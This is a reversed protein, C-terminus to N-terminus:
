FTKFWDLSGELMPIYASNHDKGSLPATRLKSTVGLDQFSKVLKTSLESPVWMDQAGYYISVNSKLVWPEVSNETFKQYLSAYTASTSFDSATFGDTLLDGIYYTLKQNIEAKTSTGNVMGSTSSSYPAKFVLSHANSIGAYMKMSEALYVLCAPQEYNGQGSLRNSLWDRLGNLNYIGAGCASANIQLDANKTDNEIASLAALTASGGQGYGLMFIKDNWKAASEYVAFEKGARVFDLVANVTYEKHLFPHFQSATEGFGIYDPILVILGTGALYTLLQNNEEEPAVSPADTKRYILNHQISVIPFREKTDLSVPTCILGSAVVTDGKFSTKYKVRYIKTDYKIKSALGSYGLGQLSGKVATATYNSSSTYESFNTMYKRPLIPDDEGRDCSVMSVVALCILLAKFLKMNRMVM